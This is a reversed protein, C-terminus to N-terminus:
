GVIALEGPIGRRPRAKGVDRVDGAYPAAIIEGAADGPRSPAASPHLRGPDLLAGSFMAEASIDPRKPCRPLSKTPLAQMGAIGQTVAGDFAKVLGRRNGLKRAGDELWRFGTGHVVKEGVGLLDAFRRHGGFAADDGRLRPFGSFDAGRHQRGAAIADIGHDRGCERKAHQLGPHAADAAAPRHHEVARTFVAKLHDIVTHARRVTKAGRIIREGAVTRGGIEEGPRADLVVAIKMTGTRDRHGAHNSAHFFRMATVCFQGPLFQHARADTEGIFAQQHIPPGRQHNGTRGGVQPTIGGAGSGIKVVPQRRIRFPADFGFHAQRLFFQFCRHRMECGLARAVEIFAIQRAADRGVHSGATARQRDFVERGEAGMPAFRQDNGVAAALDVRRRFQGASRRKRM